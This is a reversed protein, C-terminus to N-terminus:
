QTSSGAESIPSFQTRQPMGSFTSPPVGSFTSPPVGSFTSPPVGSFTSPPASFHFHQTYGATSGVSGVPKIPKQVSSFVGLQNKIESLQKILNRKNTSSTKGSVIGSKNVANPMKGKPVPRGPRFGQTGENQRTFMAANPMSGKNRNPLGMGMGANPANNRNPLGMGMGANPANNRNPLGMGMGANPANNRNPLGMGMGVNPANNRNPLGMGMGVNSANNRNPLNMGMGVSSINIGNNKITPVKMSKIPEKINLNELLNVINAILEKKTKELEVLGLKKAVSIVEKKTGKEFIIHYHKAKLPSDSDIMYIYGDYIDIEMPPVTKASKCRKFAECIQKRSFNKAYRKPVGLQSRLVSRANNINTNTVCPDM